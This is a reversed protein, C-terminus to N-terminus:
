KNWTSKESNIGLLCIVAADKEVRSGYIQNSSRLVVLYGKIQITMDVVCVGKTAHVRQFEAESVSRVGFRFMAKGETAGMILGWTIVGLAIAVSV